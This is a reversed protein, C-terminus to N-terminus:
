MSHVRNKGLSLLLCKYSKLGFSMRPEYTVDFTISYKGTVDYLVRFQTLTLLPFSATYSTFTKWCCKIRVSSNVVHNWPSKMLVNAVPISDTEHTVQLLLFDSKAAASTLRAFPVSNRKDFYPTTALAPFIAQKSQSLVAGNRYIFFAIWLLVGQQRHWIAHCFLLELATNLCNVCSKVSSFFLINRDAIQIFTSWSSSV